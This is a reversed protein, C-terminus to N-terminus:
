ILQGLNSVDCSGFHFGLEGKARVKKVWALFRDVDYFLQTVIFDAGADVKTKLFDLETDEDTKSDPHGDPYAALINVVGGKPLPTVYRRCRHL